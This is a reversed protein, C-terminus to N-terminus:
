IKSTPVRISKRKEKSLLNERARVEAGCDACTFRQFKGTPTYNFGNKNFNVSGCKCRSVLDDTYLNFDPGANSWPILKGYLEELSLIDYKNYKELEKWAALNGSLCEKWLEFGPFKHDSLKKYKKCLKQTMYELKNSTFGFHKKAIQATDIHRYSSTPKFGNLIFRANLKKQDFNIGNQTIVVDAENLLEWIKKLIKSDDEVNKANRQDMYMIKSPPDGLWKAAWSIIHWDSKIQNLGVREDWLSWIYARIPATEIDFILIKPGKNAKNM